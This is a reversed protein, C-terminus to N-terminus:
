NMIWLGGEKLALKALHYKLEVSCLSYKIFYNCKRRIAEKLYKREELVDVCCHFCWLTLFIEELLLYFHHLLRKIVFNQYDVCLKEKQKNEVFVLNKKHLKQRRELLCTSKIKNMLALSCLIWNGSAQGGQKSDSFNINKTQCYSSLVKDGSRQKTQLTFLYLIYRKDGSWGVSGM